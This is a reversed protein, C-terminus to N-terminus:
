AILMDIIFMERRYIKILRKRFEIPKWIDVQQVPNLAAVETLTQNELWYTLHRCESSMNVRYHLAPVSISSYGNRNM